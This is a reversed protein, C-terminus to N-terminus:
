KSSTGIFLHLIDIVTKNEFAGCSKTEFDADSLGDARSVPSLFGLGNDFVLAHSPKPVYLPHRAAAM